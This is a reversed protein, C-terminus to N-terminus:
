IRCHMACRATRPEYGRTRDKANANLSECITRNEEDELSELWSIAPPYQRLIDIMVDTDLLIM